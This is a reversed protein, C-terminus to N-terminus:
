WQLYNEKSPRIAPLSEIIYHWLMSLEGVRNHEDVVAAVSVYEYSKISSVYYLM